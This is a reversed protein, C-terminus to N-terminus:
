EECVEINIKYLFNNKSNRQHWGNYESYRWSEIGKGGRIGDFTWGVSISNVLGNKSIVSEIYGYRIYYEASLAEVSVIVGKSPMDIKFPALNITVWNSDDSQLSAIIENKLLEKGIGEGGEYLRLRFPRYKWETESKNYMYIQVSLIQGNINHSSIKLASQTNYSIQTHGIPRRKKNGITVTKCKKPKVVVEGIKYHIGTLIISDSSFLSSATMKKTLFGICSVIVSDTPSIASNMINVFGNADSMFLLYKGDSNIQIHAFEIAKGNKSLIRGEWKFYSEQSSSKFAFTLVFVILICQKLPTIFSM